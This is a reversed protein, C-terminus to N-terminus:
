GGIFRAAEPLVQVSPVHARKTAPARDGGPELGDRPARFNKARDAARAKLKLLAAPRDLVQHDEGVHTLHAAPEVKLPAHALRGADDLGELALLEDRPKLTDLDPNESGMSGTDVFPM